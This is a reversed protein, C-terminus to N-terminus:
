TTGCYTRLRPTSVCGPSQEIDWPLDTGFRFDDSVILVVGLQAPERRRIDLDWTRRLEIWNVVRIVDVEDALEELDIDGLLGDPDLLVVAGSSEDIARGVQARVWDKM